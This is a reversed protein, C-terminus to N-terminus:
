LHPFLPESLDLSKGLIVHTLPLALIHIWFQPTPPPPRLESVQAGRGGGAFEEFGRVLPAKEDTEQLGLRLLTLDVELSGNTYFGFSNLQIDARKEGQWLGLLCLCSLSGM